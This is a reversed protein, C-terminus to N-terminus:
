QMTWGGKNGRSIRAITLEWIDQAFVVGDSHPDHGAGGCGGVICEVGVQAPVDDVTNHSESGRVGVGLNGNSGDDLDASIVLVSGECGGIDRPDHPPTRQFM